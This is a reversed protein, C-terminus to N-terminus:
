GLAMLAVGLLAGGIGAAQSTRVRERLLVTALAITTVPYLSGIVSVVSLYGHTSAVSFLGNAGTDLLGLLVLVPLHRAHLGLKPRRALLIMAFVAASTARATLMSWYPDTHSASQLGLLMGGISLAAVVALVISLRREKAALGAPAASSAALAFGGGPLDSTALTPGGAGALAARPEGQPERAALVAGCFALAMGVLQVTGPREGRAMGVIVPLAASTASIPAVISMTGVALAKYFSAIALAGSAGGLVAPWMQALSPTPGGHLLVVVVCGALGALQSVAIVALLTHQRTRSGGLYDASGWALSAALALLVAV